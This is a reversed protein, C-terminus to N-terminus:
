KSIKAYITDEFLNVVDKKIVRGNFSLYPNFVWYNTHEQNVNYVEFKGYVGLKFLKDLVKHVDRRSINFERALVAVATEEGLPKLSNTFAAALRSLKSAVKFEQPTTQTELLDWARNYTRAFPGPNEFKTMSADAPSVPRRGRKSFTTIEGTEANVKAPLENHNLPVLYKYDSPTTNM